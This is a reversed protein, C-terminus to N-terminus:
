FVIQELLAHLAHPFNFCESKRSVALSEIERMRNRLQQRGVARLGGLFEVGGFRPHADRPADLGHAALSFGSEKVEGLPALAQLNVHALISDALAIELEILQEIDAVDHADFAVKEARAGALEAHV